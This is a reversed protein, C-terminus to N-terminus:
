EPQNVDESVVDNEIISFNPYVIYRYYTLVCSLISLVIFIGFLWSIKPNKHIRSAEM